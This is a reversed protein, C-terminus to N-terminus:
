GDSRVLGVPMNWRGPTNEPMYPMPNGVVDWGDGYPAPLDVKAGRLDGSWEKPFHATLEVRIGDQRNEGFEVSTGPVVLVGHVDVPDAYAAIDDGYIDVADSARLRVKATVTFM